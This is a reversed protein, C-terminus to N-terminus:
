KAEAEKILEMIASHSDTVIIPKDAGLVQIVGEGCKGEEGAEETVSVIKDLFISRPQDTEVDFVSIYKM